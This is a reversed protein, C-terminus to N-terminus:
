KRLSFAPFGIAAVFAAWPASTGKALATLTEAGLGRKEIELKL